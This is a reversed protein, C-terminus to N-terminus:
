RKAQQIVRWISALIYFANTYQISHEQLMDPELLKYCIESWCSTNCSGAYRAGATPIAAPRMDPELLQHQLASPVGGCLHCDNSHKHYPTVWMYNSERFCLMFMSFCIGSFGIGFMSYVYELCLGFMFFINWVHLFMNWVYELWWVYELCPGFISFLVFVYFCTFSCVGFMLTPYWPGFPGPRPGPVAGVRRAAGPGKPGHSGLNM